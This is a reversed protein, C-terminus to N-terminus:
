FPIWSQHVGNINFDVSGDAQKRPGWIDPNNNEKGNVTESIGSGSVYLYYGSWDSSSTSIAVTVKCEENGQLRTSLFPM